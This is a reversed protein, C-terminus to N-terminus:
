LTTPNRSALIRALQLDDENKIIISHLPDIRYYGVLDVYTACYGASAAKSFASSSWGTIAWNIRQIPSLDQSNSKCTNVFNVPQNNFCCEIQIEDYSLLTSYQSCLLTNTFSRIISPPLLPSITHVQVIYDCPVKSLFESIYQESTAVNDALSPSRKHIKAGAQTGITALLDSETNVWVEDFCDALFSRQIAHELLSKGYFDQLNKEKLRQSGLRAPIMCITKM